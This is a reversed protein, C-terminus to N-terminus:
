QVYTNGSWIASEGARSKVEVLVQTGAAISNGTCVFAFGTSYGNSSPYTYKYSSSNGDWYSYVSSTYYPIKHFNNSTLNAQINCSYGSVNIVTTQSLNSGNVIIVPNNYQKLGSGFTQASSNFNYASV